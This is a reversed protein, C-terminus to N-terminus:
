NRSRIEETMTIMRRLSREARKRLEEDLLIEQEPRPDILVDRIKALSNLKM